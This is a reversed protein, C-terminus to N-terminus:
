SVKTDKTGHDDEKAKPEPMGLVKRAEEATLVEKELLAEALKVLGEKRETLLEKAHKYSSDVISKVEKDIADATDDSYNRDEGLDRGLFVQHHKRGFTLHGLDKSMGYECVMRRAIDTAIELDNGAGTTIENFILEESARGGLLITLRSTLETRSIIYRDEAPIGM